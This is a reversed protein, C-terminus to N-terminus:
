RFDTLRIPMCVNTVLWPLHQLSQLGQVMRFSIPIITRMDMPPLFAGYFWSM